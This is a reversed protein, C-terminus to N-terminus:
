VLRTYMAARRLPVACPVRDTRKKGQYIKSDPDKPEAFMSTYTHTYTTRDIYMAVCTCAFRVSYKGEDM